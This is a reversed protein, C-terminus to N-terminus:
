IRQFDIKIKEQIESSKLKGAFSSIDGINIIRPDTGETQSKICFRYEKQYAFMKQKSFPVKEPPIEGNFTEEDYYDVFNLRAAMNQLKFSSKVRELFPVAQVFVAHQGFQLCRDDVEFFKKFKVAENPTMLAGKEDVEFDETYGAWLCFLHLHEHRVMSMSVPAALDKGTIETMGFLPNQLKIILDKPQFWHSVAEYSDPRAAESSELNKFYSLRNCFLDGRLFADAHSEESFFKLFYWITKMLVKM